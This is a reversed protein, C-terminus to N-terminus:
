LTELLFPLINFFFLIEFIFFDGFSLFSRFVFFDDFFFHIKTKKKLINKKQKKAINKM